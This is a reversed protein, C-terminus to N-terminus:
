KQAKAWLGSEDEDLVDDYLAKNDADEVEPHADLVAILFDDHDDNAKAIKRVKAKLAASGSSKKGDKKKSDKKAKPTEEDDEGAVGIFKVPLVVKSIVEKDGINRVIDSRKMAFRLGEWITADDPYGREQIVALADTALAAKFFIAYNTSEHFADRGEVGKGKKISDWGNGISYLQRVDEGSEDEFELIFCLVDGDQYDADFGFRAKDLTVEGEDFLGGSETDWSSM